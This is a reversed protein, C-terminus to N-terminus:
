RGALMGGNCSLDAVGALASWGSSGAGFSWLQRPAAAIGQAAPSEPKFQDALRAVGSGGGRRCATLALCAVATSRALRLYM